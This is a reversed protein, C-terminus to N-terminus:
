VVGYLSLSGENFLLSGSPSSFSTGTDNVVFRLANVRATNDVCTVAILGVGSENDSGSASLIGQLQARRTASGPYIMVDAFRPKNTAGNFLNFDIIGAIDRDDAATLRMRRYTYLYADYDGDYNEIWTTGGDQSFAGLYSLDAASRYLGAIVLRFASYGTPLTVDIFSV